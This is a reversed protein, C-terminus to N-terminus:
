KLEYDFASLARQLDLIHFAEPPVVGRKLDPYDKRFEGYILYSLNKEVAPNEMAIYFM